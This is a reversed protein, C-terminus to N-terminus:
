AATVCAEDDAAITEAVAERLRGRMQAAISEALEKSSDVLTFVVRVVGEESNASAVVGEADAPAQELAADFFAETHVGEVDGPPVKFTLTIKWDKYDNM